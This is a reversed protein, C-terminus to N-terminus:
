LSRRLVLFERAGVLGLLVGAIGLVVSLGVYLLARRYDGDQLLRVAELSFTSFTTFGGCFGATLLVRLDRSIAPSALAYETIAGLLLSGVLNVTLTGWPFTTQAQRQMLDSVYVRAVSGLAGGAAVYWYTM